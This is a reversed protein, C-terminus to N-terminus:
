CSGDFGKWLAPTWLMPNAVATLPGVEGHSRSMRRQLEKGTKRSVFKALCAWIWARLARLDVWWLGATCHDAREQLGFSLRATSM